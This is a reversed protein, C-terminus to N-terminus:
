YSSKPNLYDTIGASGELFPQDIVSLFPHDVGPLQRPAPSLSPNSSPPTSPQSARAGGVLRWTGPVELVEAVSRQIPERTSPELFSPSPSPRDPARAVM